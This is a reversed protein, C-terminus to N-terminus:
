TLCDLGDLLMHIVLGLGALRTVPFLSLLVYIAIPVATHLPHFGISCRGPDYIPDALVHDVDVLMTLMMLGWAHRWRPRFFVLAVVLPILFHLAIHIIDAAELCCCPPPRIFYWNGSVLNM